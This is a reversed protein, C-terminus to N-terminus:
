QDGELRGNCMYGPGGITLEKGKSLWFSPMGVRESGGVLHVVATSETQGERWELRGLGKAKEIWSWSAEIVGGEEFELTWRDHPYQVAKLHVYSGVGDTEAPSSFHECAFVVPASRPEGSLVAALTFLGIM